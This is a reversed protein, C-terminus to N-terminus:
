QMSRLESIRATMADLLCKKAWETSQQPTPRGRLPLGCEPGYRTMWVIEQNRVRNGLRARADTYADELRAEADLLEDSTCIVFDAGMSARSCDFSTPMRYSQSAQAPPNAPPATQVQPAPTEQQVYQAPCGLDKAFQNGECTARIIAAGM